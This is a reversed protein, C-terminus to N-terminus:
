SMIRPVQFIQFLAYFIFDFAGDFFGCAGDFFFDAPHSAVLFGLGSAGRIFSLALNLFFDAVDFFNELLSCNKQPITM